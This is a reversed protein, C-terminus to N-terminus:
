PKMLNDMLFSMQVAMDATQTYEDPYDHGGESGELLLAPAGVEQMKAVFRRAHSPGVQSDNTAIITLTPPYRVGAKINFYPDWRQMVLRDAPDDWSGFESNMGAGIGGDGHGVISFDTIPAGIMAAAYLDPRLVVAGATLVGGNSRGTIGLHAHDTFGSTELTEAVSNFDDFMAKKHKGAGALHWAGGREGGGRVAAIALAGGRDFWSKWSAGFHCCFYHPDDSVGFGGYGELITPTPGTRAATKHMLYYSVSEGDAARASKIDVTYGSLDAQPNASDVTVPHGHIWRRVRRPVLLGQENMLVGEITEGSEVGLMTGAPEVLQQKVTWAGDKLTAFYLVRQLNRVGVIALGERSGAFGGSLYVGRPPQMVVSTRKSSLDYAIITDAPYVKGNIAHPTALQEVVQNGTLTPVGFNNLEAPLPLDSSQGDPTVTKVQFSDYTKLESILIQPHEPAGTVKYLFLSEGQPVEYIKPARALPTGRKWVHLEAPFQSPMVRVNGTTHAVLLTDRDLWVVSNRGPAVSFGDKPVQGTKLDLEVYANDQGGNYFLPIMCRDFDSGIALCEKDPATWKITYPKEQTKNYADLDFVTRWGGGQGDPAVDGVQFRGYPHAQDQEFRVYRHSGLLAYKPLPRADAHVKQMDDLVSKFNPSGELKARTAVTQQRAWAVAREGFQPTLYGFKDQPTDQAAATPEAAPQAAAGQAGAMQVVAASAALLSVLVGSRKIRSLM